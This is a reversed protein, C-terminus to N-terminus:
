AYGRRAVWAAQIWALQIKEPLEDWSPIPEGQFNVGGVARGYAEFTMQGYEALTKPM